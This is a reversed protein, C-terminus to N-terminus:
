PAVLAHKQAKQIVMANYENPNEKFLRAAERNKPMDVNCNPLMSQISLLISSLDWAPTWGEDLYLKGTEFSINPHFIKNMFTVTPSEFPYKEPIDLRVRWM